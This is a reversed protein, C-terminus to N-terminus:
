HQHKAIHSRLSILCCGLMLLGIPGVGCFTPPPALGIATGAATGGVLTVRGFQVGDRDCDVSQIVRYTFETTGNFDAAPLFVFDLPGPGSQELIGRAPFQFVGVDGDGLGSVDLRFATPRGQEVMVLQDRVEPCRRFQAHSISM